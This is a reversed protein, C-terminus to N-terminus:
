GPPTLIRGTEFFAKLNDLVLREIQARTEHTSPAVHPLIVVRDNQLL